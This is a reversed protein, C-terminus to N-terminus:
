RTVGAARDQEVRVSVAGTVIPQADPSPHELADILSVLAGHERRRLSLWVHGESM